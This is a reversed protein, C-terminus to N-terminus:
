YCHLFAWSSKDDGFLLNLCPEVHYYHECVAGLLAAAWTRQLIYITWFWSTDSLISSHFLTANITFSLPHGNLFPFCQLPPSRDSILMLHPNIFSQLYSYSFIAVKFENSDSEGFQQFFPFLVVHPGPLAHHSTTVLTGQAQFSFLSRYVWWYFM